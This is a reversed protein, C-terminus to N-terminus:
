TIALDILTVCGTYVMSHEIHVHCGIYCLGGTYTAADVCAMIKISHHTCLVKKVGGEHLEIGSLSGRIFDWPHPWIIM